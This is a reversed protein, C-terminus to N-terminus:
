SFSYFLFLIFYFMFDNSWGHNGDYVKIKKEIQKIEGKIINIIIKM